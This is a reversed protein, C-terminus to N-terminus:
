ASGGRPPWLLWRNTQLIKSRTSRSKAFSKVPMADRKAAPVAAAGGSGIATLTRSGYAAQGAVFTTGPFAQSRLLRDYACTKRNTCRLHTETPQKSHPFTQQRCVLFLQDIRQLSDDNM